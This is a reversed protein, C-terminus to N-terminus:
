LKANLVSRFVGMYYGIARATICVFERISNCSLIRSRVLSFLGMEKKLFNKDVYRQHVGATYGGLCCRRIANSFRLNNKNYEHYAISSPLYMRDKSIPGSLKQLFVAEDGVPFRTGPGANEPWPQRISKLLKTRVAINPGVPYENVGFVIETEGFDQESLLITKLNFSRSIWEPIIDDNVLIRGGFINIEPMSKAADYFANLWNSDPVIDDDAFIILDGKADLIAQNLSRSKGKDAVHIVKLPLRHRFSDLLEETRDITSNDAIIIEFPVECVVSEMSTLFKRIFLDRNRSALVVSIEPTKM